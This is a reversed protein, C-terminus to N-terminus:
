DGPNLEFDLAEWPTDDTESWTGSNLTAVLVNGGRTVFRWEKKRPEQTLDRVIEALFRTPIRFTM